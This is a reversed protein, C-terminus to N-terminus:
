INKVLILDGEIKAEYQPLPEKAIGSLVKGDPAFTSDHCPCSFYNQEGKWTVTCGAHPCIPNVAFLQEPNTTDRVV